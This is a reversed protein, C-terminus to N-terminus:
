LRAALFELRCELRDLLAECDIIYDTINNPEPRIAGPNGPNSQNLGDSNFAEICVTSLHGDLRALRSMVDRLRAKTSLSLPAAQTVAGVYSRDSQASV